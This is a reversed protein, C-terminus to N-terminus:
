TANPKSASDCLKPEEYTLNYQAIQPVATPFREVIAPPICEAAYMPLRLMHSERLEALVLLLYQSAIESPSPWWHRRKTWLAKRRACAEAWEWALQWARDDRHPRSRLYRWLVSRVERILKARAAGRAIVYHEPRRTVEDGYITKRSM